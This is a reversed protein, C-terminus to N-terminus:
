NSKKIMLGVEMIGPLDLKPWKNEIRFKFIGPESFIYDDRILINIDCFDGLCESLRNGDNDLLDLKYEASRIEGSPSYITVNVPLEKLSFEPLHRISIYINYAIDPDEIPVKFELFDFRHWSYKEFKKYEEYIKHNVCGFGFLFSIFLLWTTKQRYM